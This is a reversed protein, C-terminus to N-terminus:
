PRSSQGSEGPTLKGAAQNQRSQLASWECDRKLDEFFRLTTKRLALELAFDFIPWPKGVVEVSVHIETEDGSRAIFAVRTNLTVGFILSTYVLERDREYHLLVQEVVAPMPESVEIRLRSGEEWANGEVWRVSNAFGRHCWRDTDTYVAFVAPLPSGLVFNFEFPPIGETANPHAPVTSLTAEV